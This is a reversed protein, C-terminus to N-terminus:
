RTPLPASGRRRSPRRAAPPPSCRRRRTRTRPPHPSPPPPAPTPAPPPPPAPAPAQRGAEPQTNSAVHTAVTRTHPEHRPPARGLVGQTIVAVLAGHTAVVTAIERACAIACHASCGAHRPQLRARVRGGWNSAESAHRWERGGDCGAGGGVKRPWRAARRQRVVHACAGRGRRREQAVVVRHGLATTGGGKGGRGGIGGTGSGSIRAKRTGTYSHAFSCALTHAPLKRVCVRTRTPPRRDDCWNSDIGVGCISGTGAALVCALLCALNRPHRPATPFAANADRPTPRM